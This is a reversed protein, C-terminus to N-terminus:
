VEEGAGCHLCAALVRYDDGRRFPRYDLGRRRCAACKLHRCVRKDIARGDPSVRPPAGAVFGLSRWERDLAEATTATAPTRTTPQMQKLSRQPPRRTTIVCAPGNENIWSRAGHRRDEAEHGHHQLIHGPRGAALVALDDIGPRQQAAGV